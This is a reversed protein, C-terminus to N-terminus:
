EPNEKFSELIGLMADYNRDYRSKHTWAMIKYFDNQGEVSAVIGRIAVADSYGGFSFLRGPMNQIPYAGYREFEPNQFDTFAYEILLETYEGLDVSTEFDEKPERVVVIGIDKGEHVYAFEAGEPTQEVWGDDPLTLSVLGNPSAVTRSIAERKASGDSERTAASAQRCRAPRHRNALSGGDCRWAVADDVITPTWIITQGDLQPKGRMEMTMVGGPGLTLSAIHLSVVAEPVGLEANSSPLTGHESYFDVLKRRYRESDQIARAVEARTVYDQYAPIAIAALIGGFFIVVIVVIAIVLGVSSKKEVQQVAGCFPCQYAKPSVPKGCNRCYVVQQTQPTARKPPAEAPPPAAAAPRTPFHTEPETSVPQTLEASPDTEEESMPELVLTPELSPLPPEADVMVGIKKMGDIYKLASAEDLGQKIPIPKGSFLKEVQAPALKMLQGLHQKVAAEEFGPLV